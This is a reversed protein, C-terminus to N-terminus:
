ILERKAEKRSNYYKKVAYIEGKNTKVEIYGEFAIGAFSADHSIVIAKKVENSTVFYVVSGIHSKENMYEYLSIQGDMDKPIM